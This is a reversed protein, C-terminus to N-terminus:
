EEPVAAVRFGLSRSRFSPSFNGPYAARCHLGNVNWSGGRYVRSSGDTPGQPDTVTGAEYGGYWDSCWEWVNGHMDFLGLRNPEYSGVKSSRRLYPWKDAGGYPSNGDFNAQTSSLSSTPQEFHCPL